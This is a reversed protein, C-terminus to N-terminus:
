EYARAVISGGYTVGLELGSFQMETIMPGVRGTIPATDSYLSGDFFVSGSLTGSVAGDAAVDAHLTLEVTVAHGDIQGPCAFFTHIVGRDSSFELPTTCSGSSGQGAGSAEFRGAFLYDQAYPSDFIRCETSPDDCDAELDSWVGEMIGDIEATKIASDVLFGHEYLDVLVTPPEGDSFSGPYLNQSGIYFAQDDVAFYKAHANYEALRVRRHAERRQGRDLGQARFEDEMHETLQDWVYEASPFYGEQPGVTIRVDVGRMAAASLSDFLRDVELLTFFLSRQMLFLDHQASDLAAYIARD